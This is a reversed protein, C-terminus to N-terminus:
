NTGRAYDDYSPNEYVNKELKKLKEFTIFRVLFATFYM